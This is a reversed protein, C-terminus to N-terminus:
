SEIRWAKKTVLIFTELLAKPPLNELPFLTRRRECRAEPM